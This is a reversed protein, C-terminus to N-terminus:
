ERYADFPGLSPFGESMAVQKRFRRVRREFQPSPDLGRRTRWALYEITLAIDAEQGKPALGALAVRAQQVTIGLQVLGRAAEDLSDPNPQEDERFEPRWNASM